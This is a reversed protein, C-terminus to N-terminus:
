SFTIAAEASTLKEVKRVPIGDFLMTPHGAVDEFKLTSNAVKNIIQIRWMERVMPNCYIAPKIGSMSPIRELARVTLKILDANSSEAQLNSRDINPIRVAYRWDKIAIGCDWMIQSRYVYYPKSNADFAQERGLDNLKLGAESGKPYIGFVTNPSWGIVWISANDSGSGGGNVMSNYYATSAAVAASYRTALGDFEDPATNQNGYFLMTALKQNMAEMWAGDEQIRLDAKAGSSSARDILQQDIDSFGELHACTFTSQAVTSKSKDAGQNIRRTTVTPLGTRVTIQHGTDLNGEVWPIDRLIENQQTLIEAVRAATGDPDKLKAVDALTLQTNGIAAM